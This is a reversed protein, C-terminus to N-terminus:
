RKMKTLCGDSIKKVSVITSEDKKNQTNSAEGVDRKRRGKEEETKKIKGNIDGRRLRESCINTQWNNRDEGISEYRKNPM